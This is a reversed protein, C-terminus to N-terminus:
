LELNVKEKGRSLLFGSYLALGELIGGVFGIVVYMLYYPIFTMKGMVQIIKGGYIEEFFLTALFWTLFGVLFGMRFSSVQWKKLPLIIGLLFVAILFSWWPLYALMQFSISVIILIILIIVKKM